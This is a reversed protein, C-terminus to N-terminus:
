TARRPRTVDFVRVGVDPAVPALWPAAALTAAAAAHGQALRDEMTARSFEYDKTAGLPANPRYILHAIDMQTVCASAYLRRAEPTQKLEPTLREWLANIGHRLEHITRAATTGARTRSSYRIDKEREAAADLDAPPPGDACFLDVQFVLLNDRPEYDIVYQLPTNSILGGDWYLAGDIEVPPFGPPLAGSAMVHAPRIRTHRNDFWVFNGSEVNVAAVSFITERANIRDFDV